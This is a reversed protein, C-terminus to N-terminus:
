YSSAGDYPCDTYVSLIQAGTLQWKQNPLKVIIRHLLEAQEADGLGMEVAIALALQHAGRSNVGWDFDDSTHIYHDYAPDLEEGVRGNAYSVTVFTEGEARYGRFIM